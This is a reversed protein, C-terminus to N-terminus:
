TTFNLSSDLDEKGGDLARQMIDLAKRGLELVQSLRTFKVLTTWHFNKAKSFVLICTYGMNFFFFFSQSINTSLQYLIFLILIVLLSDPYTCM